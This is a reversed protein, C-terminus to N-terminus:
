EAAGRELPLSMEVRWGGEHEGSAMRADPGYVARLRARVNALGVGTGTRRPRDEDCPNEVVIRLMSTSRSVAIRITGGALVHAVGHTVANEVVPQLLLPPVLCAGADGDHISVNLREGFRVREIDLFRAALNLERALPIRTAGGLALSERLFDALLLCMRRAAGADTTTLASISHLSNFLFHPDIQARLSRLEAERALVQVELARRETERAREFSGILHSIALSLLYLLVGFGFVLAAIRGFVRDADFGGSRRALAELWVRTLVLWAASSLCAATVATATLRVSGTAALPMSRSVYWASLCFFGYTVTLPIALPLSQSWPLGATGGLLAALLTGGIAWVAVYLALRAGRALIPHM